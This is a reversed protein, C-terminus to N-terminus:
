NIIFLKKLEEYKKLIKLSTKNRYEQQEMNIIFNLIKDYNLHIEHSNIVPTELDFMECIGEMKCHNASICLSPVGCILSMLTPHYRGSISIYANSLIVFADKWNLNNVSIFTCNTVKSIKELWNIEESSAAYIIIEYNIIKKIKKILKVYIDIADYHKRDPRYYNSNGGIVIYKKTPLLNSSNYNEKDITLLFDPQFVVNHVYHKKFNIISIPERLQIKLNKHLCSEFNVINEKSKLDFCSNLLYTTKGLIKMNILFSIMSKGKLCKQEYLSGEGNIFIIEIKENKIFNIFSLFKNKNMSDHLTLTKVVNYYNNLMKLTFFTTAHCGWNLQSTTDNFLVCKQKEM